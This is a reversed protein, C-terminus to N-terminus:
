PRGSGSAGYCSQLDHFGPFPYDFAVLATTSGRRFNWLTSYQGLVEARGIVQESGEVRQWGSLQAPLTFSAETSLRSTRWLDAVRFQSVGAAVLFLPVLVWANLSRSNAGIDAPLPDSSVQPGASSDPRDASPHLIEILQDFSAALAVCGLFLILGLLAHASGSLIDIQYRSQLVAGIVIRFVNAWIVFLVSVAAQLTIRWAPRRWWFGIMLTVAIVAMLSNIGSCAEEVGLRRGAINILTGSVVNPVHLLDLLTGSAFVAWSRLTLALRDDLRMPPPIILVLLILGPLMKRALSAGGIWLGFGFIAIWAAPGAFWRVMLFAGLLSLATSLLMLAAGLRRSTKTAQPLAAARVRDWILCAAGLIVLPFFDYQPRASLDALFKLLLPTHALLLSAAVTALLPLDRKSAPASIRLTPTTPPHIASSTM